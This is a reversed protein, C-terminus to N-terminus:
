KHNTNQRKDFRISKLIQDSFNNKMSQSRIINYKWSAKFIKVKLERKSFDPRDIFLLTYFWWLNNNLGFLIMWTKFFAELKTKFLKKMNRATCPHFCEDSSFMYKPQISQMRLVRICRGCWGSVSKGTCIWSKRFTILIGLILSINALFNDM